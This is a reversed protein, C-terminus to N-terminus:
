LPRSRGSSPPCSRVLLGITAIMPSNELQKRSAAAGLQGSEAFPEDTMMARDLTRRTLRRCVARGLEFRGAFAVGRGGGFFMDLRHGPATRDSQEDGSRSLRSWLRQPAAGAKAFGPSRSRTRCSGSSVSAYHRAK